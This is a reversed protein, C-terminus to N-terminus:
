DSLLPNISERLKNYKKERIIKISPEVPTTKLLRFHYSILLWYGTILLWNLLSAYNFIGLIYESFTNLKGAKDPKMRQTRQSSQTQFLM